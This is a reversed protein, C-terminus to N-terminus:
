NPLVLESGQFTLTQNSSSFGKLDRPAALIYIFMDLSQCITLHGDQHSIILFYLDLSDAEFVHHFHVLSNEGCLVYYM